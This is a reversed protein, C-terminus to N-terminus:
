ILILRQGSKVGSSMLTKSDSLFVQTEASCLITKLPDLSINGDELEAIEASVAEKVQSATMKSDMQFEYTKGNGPTSIEVYIRTM